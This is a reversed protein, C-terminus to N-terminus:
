YIIAPIQVNHKEKCLNIMYSHRIMEIKSHTENVVNNGPTLKNNNNM